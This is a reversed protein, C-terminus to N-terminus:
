VELFIEVRPDNPDYGGTYYHTEGIHRDCDDPLKGLEVLADCFFKEHISLVNSRDTKINSHKYYVLSISKM